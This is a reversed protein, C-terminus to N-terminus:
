DHMDLSIVLETEVSLVIIRCCALILHKLDIDVIDFLVISRGVVRDMTEGDCGSLMQNTNCGDTTAVAFQASEREANRLFRSCFPEITVIGRLDNVLRLLHVRNDIICLIIVDGACLGNYFPYACRSITDREVLSM